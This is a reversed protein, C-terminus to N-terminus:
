SSAAEKKPDFLTLQSASRAKELREVEGMWDGHRAIVATFEEIDHGVLGVVEEDDDNVEVACHCLEHDLLARQLDERKTKTWAVWTPHHLAIVWGEALEGEEMDGFLSWEPIVGDALNRDLLIGYAHREVPSLKSAQGITFRGKSKKDKHFFRFIVPHGIMHPHFKHIIPMAMSAVPAFSIDPM